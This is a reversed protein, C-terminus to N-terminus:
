RVFSVYLYAFDIPKLEQTLEAQELADTLPRQCYGLSELRVVIDTYSLGIGFAGVWLHDYDVEFVVILDDLSRDLGVTGDHV